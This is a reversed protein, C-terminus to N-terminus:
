QVRIDAAHLLQRDAQRVIFMEDNTQRGSRDSVAISQEAKKM